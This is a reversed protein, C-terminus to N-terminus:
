GKTNGVDSFLMYGSTCRICEDVAETNCVDCGSTCADCYREPDAGSDYKAYYGTPCTSICANNHLSSGSVCDTCTSADTTCDICNADCDVCTRNSSNEFFKVPCASTCTIGDDNLYYGSACSECSTGNSQCKECNKSPDCTARCGEGSWFTFGTDCSLCDGIAPGNCTGTNNCSDDCTKCCDIPTTGDIIDLCGNTSLYTGTPCTSVCEGLTKTVNTFNIKKGTDCRTCNTAADDDCKM